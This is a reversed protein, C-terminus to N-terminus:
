YGRDPYGNENLPYTKKVRLIDTSYLGSQGMYDQPHESRIMGTGSMVAEQWQNLNTILPVNIGFRMVYRGIDHKPRGTPMFNEFLDFEPDELAKAHSHQYHQKDHEHFSEIPLHAYWNRDQEFSTEGWPADQQETSM